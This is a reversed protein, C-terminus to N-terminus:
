ELYFKALAECAEFHAPPSFADFQTVVGGAKEGLCEVPNATQKHAPTETAPWDSPFQRLEKRTM